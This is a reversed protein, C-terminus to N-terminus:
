GFISSTGHDDDQHDDKDCPGEGPSGPSLEGHPVRLARGKVPREDNM